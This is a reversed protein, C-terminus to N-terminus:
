KSELEEVVINGALDWARVTVIHSGAPVLTSVDADIAEDATDFVGDAAGIPRWETRGDVALQVGAIPGLGDVVRGRLRRGALALGKFVPPTNDVLIPASELSHRQIQDPPNSLEDSAEVRVRYKGEPLASTDWELDNKTLVDGPNLADRWVNQGERRFSVRYRLADNDPDDVKWTVKLTSEHRPPEGGSQPIDKEHDAHREHVGVELVIPRVNETVFPVVVDALTANPDHTWRARVQIFRGAPSKVLGASALPDSWPTWTSLDPVQSNGTRTQLELSGSGHWSLTGYKARLGADLVKSTWATDAGGRALIRHAVAPDSGVVVGGVTGSKRPVPGLAPLSPQRSHVASPFAIAGVQREDLDAVLTVVHADDVTYIRGEAGTGVYPHGEDDLALAMYHFEDHHMMKEPRGSADFRYLSGKGPKPRSASIPGGPSRGSTVNRKSPEPAEPEENAIAYIVGGKGPAIARVSVSPEGPFDYLVTATGPATIRYLMGKGSAGALVDGNDAIAVSVLNTEASKFYISPNGGADIRFLKGEPGTAAFITTKSRDFALAWVNSTDPLTAFVEAKGQSVRFIKGESITAAYIVGNAGQVLSTVSLAGTDAFLSAQDNVIKFVKGEPSTGVLVSGDALALASWAATAGQLPVDGLTWGARVIGDSSVAVGKLDGGQLDELRDLEFTRTGVAGAMPAVLLAAAAGAFVLARSRM